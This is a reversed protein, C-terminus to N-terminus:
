QTKSAAARDFAATVAEIFDKRVQIVRNNERTPHVRNCLLVAYTRQRPDIWAATGTFGTHSLMSQYSGDENRRVGWGLTRHSHEGVSRERFFDGAVAQPFLSSRGELARLWEATLKGLDEVTSFLGAHGTIGQGARANEDHAVGRVFRGDEPLQETPPIRDLLVRPPNRLTDNMRLPVFVLERELDALPKGGIRSAVEGALIMGPDSYRFQKGPEAALPTAYIAKLLGAYTDVSKYFPKWSVLGGTHTLLHELTLKLRRNREAESPAAEIFEPLHRSVPENVSVKGLAVLRMYVSTTGAIKTLSALDYITAPKVPAGDAYDFRGFAELWLTRQETGVVVACGPYARNTLGRLLVERAAAFDAAGEAGSALWRSGALLVLVCCAIQERSRLMMRSSEYAFGCGPARFFWKM